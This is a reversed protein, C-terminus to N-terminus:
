KRESEPLHIVTLVCSDWVKTGRSNNWTVYIKDGAPDVASSFTGRLTCGFKKLYYEHLFAVVKKRRTKV